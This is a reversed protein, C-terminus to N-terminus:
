IDETTGVYAPVVFNRGDVSREVLHMWSTWHNTLLTFPWFKTTGAYVPVPDLMYSTWPWSNKTSLWNFTNYRKVRSYIPLWFIRWLTPLNSYYWLYYTGFYCLLKLIRFFSLHLLLVVMLRRENAHQAHPQRALFNIFVIFNSALIAFFSSSFYKEWIRTIKPLM